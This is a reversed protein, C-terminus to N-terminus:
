YSPIGNNSVDVSTGDALSIGQYSLNIYQLMTDGALDYLNWGSGQGAQGWSQSIIQEQFIM